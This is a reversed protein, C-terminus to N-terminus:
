EFCLLASNYSERGDHKGKAKTLKGRFQLRQLGVEEEVEELSAVEWHLDPCLGAVELQKVGEEAMVLPYVQSSSYDFEPSSYQVRSPQSALTKGTMSPFEEFTHGIRTPQSSSTNAKRSPLKM